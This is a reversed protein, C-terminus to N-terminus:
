RPRGGEDQDGDEGLEIAQGALRSTRMAATEDSVPGSPAVPIRVSKGSM